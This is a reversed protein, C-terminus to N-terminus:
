LKKSFNPNTILYGNDFYQLMWRCWSQRFPKAVKGERVWIQLQRLGVLRHSYRVVKEMDVPNKVKSFIDNLDVQTSFTHAVGTGINVIQDKIGSLNYHHEATSERHDAVKLHSNLNRRAYSLLEDKGSADAILQAADVAAFCLSDRARRIDYIGVRLTPDFQFRKVMAQSVFGLELEPFYITKIRSGFLYRLGKTCGIGRVIKSITNTFFTSYSSGEGHANLSCGLNNSRFQSAEYPPHDISKGNRTFEKCPKSKFLLTRCTRINGDLTDYRREIGNNLLKYAQFADKFHKEIAFLDKKVGTHRDRTWSSRVETPASASSKSQNLSLMYCDGFQVAVVEVCRKKRRCYDDETFMELEVLTMPRIGTYLCLHFVFNLIRFKQFARFAVNNKGVVLSGVDIGVRHQIKDLVTGVEKLLDMNWNVTKESIRSKNAKSSITKYIRRSIIANSVVSSLNAIKKEHFYIAIIHFGIAIGRTIPLMSVYKCSQSLCDTFLQIEKSLPASLVREINNEGELICRKERLFDFFRLLPRTVIAQKQRPTKQEISQWPQLNHDITEVRLVSLKDKVFVELAKNFAETQHKRKFVKEEKITALLKENKQQEETNKKKTLQRFTDAVFLQFAAVIAKEMGSFKLILLLTELNVLKTAHQFPIPQRWEKVLSTRIKKALDKDFQGANKYFYTNALQTKAKLFKSSRPLRWCNGNAKKLLGGHVAFAIATVCQTKGHECLRWFPVDIDRFHFSKTKIFQM